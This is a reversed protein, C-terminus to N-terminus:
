PVAGTEDSQPALLSHYFTLGVSWQAFGLTGRHEEQQDLVGSSRGEVRLAIDDRLFLHAGGGAHLLLKTVSKANISTGPFVQITGLGASVFPRLRGWTFLPTIGSVHHVAAHTNSSPNHALTAELGFRRAPFFALQFSYLPESGFEGATVSFGLNGTLVRAVAGPAAGATGPASPDSAGWACVTWLMWVGTCLVTRRVSIM